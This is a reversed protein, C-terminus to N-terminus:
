RSWDDGFDADSERTWAARPEMQPPEERLAGTERDRRLVFKGGIPGRKLKAVRAMVPADSSDPCDPAADNCGKVIETTVKCTHCKVDYRPM